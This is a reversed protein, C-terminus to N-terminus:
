SAAEITGGGRRRRSQTSRKEFCDLAHSKIGYKLYNKGMITLRNLFKPDFRGYLQHVKVAESIRGKALLDDILALGVSEEFVPANPSKEHTAKLIALTSDLGKERM